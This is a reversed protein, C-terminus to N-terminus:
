AELVDVGLQNGAEIAEDITNYVRRKIERGENAAAAIVTRPGHAAIRRADEDTAGEYVLAVPVKGSFSITGAPNKFAYIM